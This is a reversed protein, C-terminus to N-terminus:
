NSRDLPVASIAMRNIDGQYALLHGYREHVLSTDAHGLWRAVLREVVVGSFSLLAGDSDTALVPQEEGALVAAM